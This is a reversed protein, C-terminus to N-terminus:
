YVAWRSIGYNDFLRKLTSELTLANLRKINAKLHATNQFESRFLEENLLENTIFDANLCVDVVNTNPNRELTILGKKELTFLLRIIQKLRIMGNSYSRMLLDRDIPSLYVQNEAQRIVKALKYDAVFDILFAIKRYDIFKRVGCYCGLLHLLIVLNYTLFYFDEGKVFMLKKKIHINQNQDNM